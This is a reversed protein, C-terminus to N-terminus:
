SILKKAKLWATAADKPDMRDIGVQRNLGTLEETTLISSVSKALAKIEDGFQGMAATRVVPAVNDALQLHKDDDLLVLSQATIVADSSFLVAVDIQNSTLASVTIPGGTDLPKFEKFTLGYVDRYGLLCFPRDPCTPPGGLTMQDMHAALDSTKKLNYRDATAKTVVLANTDIAPAYDLVTMGRPNLAAQLSTLTAAPDSTGVQENKTVYALMTALYEPYLDIQGSELAPAVIERSGLNLKREIKYGKGELVQGYLEALVIQESFNTSGVRIL